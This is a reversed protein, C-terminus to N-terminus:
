VMIKTFITGPALEHFSLCAVICIRSPGVSNLPASGVIPHGNFQRWSWCMTARTIYPTLIIAFLSAWGLMVQLGLPPTQISKVSEPHSM